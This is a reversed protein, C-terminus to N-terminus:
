QMSEAQPQSAMMQQVQMAKQGAPNSSSQRVYNRTTSGPKNPQPPQGSPPEQPQVDASIIIDRFQPINLLEAYLENIANFDLTMGQQQMLPLAPLYFNQIRDSIAAIKQEPSQYPMSYPDVNINYQMFDGERDEPTWSVDIPESLGPVREQGPMRKVEDVWLMWGISKVIKKTFAIVRKQMKAIRQGAAQQLMQDQGVTGTQSSLGGIANPNGAQQNMEGSLLQAYGATQNDVGNFRMVFTSDKDRMAVTAMDDAEVIKKADNGNDRYGLITKQNKAQRIGKRMLSNIAQHLPLINGVFSVPMINDPVDSLTLGMFPGEEPGRWNEVYLPPLGRQNAPLVAWVGKGNNERPLYVDCLTVMDDIDDVDRNDSIDSAREDHNQTNSAWKSEANLQKVVEPDFRGDSKVSNLTVRYTHAAFSIEEWERASMDFCFDDLSIRQVFPKGADILINPEIAFQAERYAQMVEPPDFMSPEPPMEPNPMEVPNGPAFFVKVIGMSFMADMVVKQLTTELDMEIIQNNTARQLRRAFPKCERYDSTAMVRPQDSVLTGSIIDVTNFIGSVITRRRSAIERNPGYESGVYEDILHKRSERFPRLREWSADYASWFKQLQTGDKLDM